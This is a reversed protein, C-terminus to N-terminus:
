QGLPSAMDQSVFRLHCGRPRFRCVYGAPPPCVAAHVARTERPQLVRHRRWLRLLLHEQNAFATIRGVDRIAKDADPTTARGPFDIRRQGGDNSGGRGQSSWVADPFEEDPDYVLITNHAVLRSYYNARHSSYENVGSDVALSGHKFIVFSNNDLHQHGAFIPGCQFMAGSADPADWASRTYVHGLPRFVAALPLDSPPQAGLRADWPILHLWILQPYQFPIQDHAWQALPDRYAAACIAFTPKATGQSWRHSSPCDESRCQRGDPQRGYLNWRSAERWFSCSEFLDEDTASRWALLYSALPREVGWNAYSFGEADGGDEGAMENMAPIVHEKLWTEGEALYAQWEAQHHAEHALSLGVHLQSMHELLFHNNYDSHRWLEKIRTVQRIMGDAFREKEDDTLTPYIWDYAVAAAPIYELCTWPNQITENPLLEFWEKAKDAYRRQSTILDDLNRDSRDREM